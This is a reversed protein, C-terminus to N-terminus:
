YRITEYNDIDLLRPQLTLHLAPVYAYNCVYIIDCFDETL